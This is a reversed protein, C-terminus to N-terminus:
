LYLSIGLSFNILTEQDYFSELEPPVETSFKLRNYDMNFFAAFTSNLWYNVRGGLMFSDFEDRLNRGGGILSHKIRSDADLYYLADAAWRDSFPIRVGFKYRNFNLVSRSIDGTIETNKTKFYHYDVSVGVIAYDYIIADVEFGWGPSISMAKNLYSNGTAFPLNARFSTAFALLSENRNYDIFVNSWEHGNKYVNNSEDLKQSFCFLPLGLLISILFLARM